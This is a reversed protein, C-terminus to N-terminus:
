FEKGGHKFGRTRNFALKEHMAMAIDIDFIWCMDFVRIVIDALESPVGLPKGKEDYYVETMEKGSRLEDHAEVAESVILMMKNGIWDKRAKPDSPVDHWGLAEAENGCRNAFDKIGEYEEEFIMM